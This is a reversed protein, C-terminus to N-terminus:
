IKDLKKIKETQKFFHGSVIIIMFSHKPALLAAPLPAGGKFARMGNLALQEKVQLL